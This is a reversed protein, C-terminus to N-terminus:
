LKDGTKVIYRCDATPSNTIQPPLTKKKGISIKAPTHDVYLSTLVINGYFIVLKSLLLSKFQQNSFQLTSAHKVQLLM